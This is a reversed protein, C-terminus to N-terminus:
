VITQKTSFYPFNWEHAKLSFALGGNNYHATIHQRNRQLSCSHKVRQSNITFEMYKCRFCCMMSIPTNQTRNPPPQHASFKSLVFREKLSIRRIVLGTVNHASPLTCSWSNEAALFLFTKLLILVRCSVFPIYVWVICLYFKLLQSIRMFADCVWRLVWASLQTPPLTSHWMRPDRSSSIRREM